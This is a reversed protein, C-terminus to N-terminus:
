FSSAVVLLNWFIGILWGGAALLLMGGGLEEIVLRLGM